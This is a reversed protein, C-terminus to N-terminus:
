FFKQTSIQEANREIVENALVKEASPEALASATLTGLFFAVVVSQLV